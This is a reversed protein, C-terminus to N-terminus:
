TPWRFRASSVRFTKRNTSDPCHYVSYQLPFRQRYAGAAVKEIRRLFHLPLSLARLSPSCSQRLRKTESRANPAASMNSGTMTFAALYQPIHAARAGNRLLRIVFEADGVDKWTMDFRAGGAIVRRRIFMTCSLVYLHSVAIYRWRPQYGKRYALLAGDPDILLADGFVLDVEPHADFYNAVTALTGPLYQEDCNLYSVFEGRARDLGKNVADYMGKDREIISVIEDHSHLWEATGDRSLGDAVIHEAAIGQDAISRACRKLYPLMNFSPTVVTFRPAPGGDPTGTM